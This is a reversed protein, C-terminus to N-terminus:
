HRSDIPRAQSRDHSVRRRLGPLATLGIAAPLCLFPMMPHRFRAVAHITGSVVVLYTVIAGVVLWLRRPNDLTPGRAARRRDRLLIVVGLMILGLMVFWYMSRSGWWVVQAISGRARIHTWAEGVRGAALLRSISAGEEPFPLAFLTALEGAPPQVLTLLSGKFHQRLVGPLHGLNYRVGELRAARAVAAQDKQQEAPLAAIFAPRYENRFELFHRGANAAMDSGAASFLMAHDIQASFGGYGAVVANRVHWGGILVAGGAVVAAAARLRTRWGAPWAAMFVGAGLALPLLYAVPRVLAAAGALAGALVLARPSRGRVAVTAASVILFTFLTESMVLSTYVVLLPEIAALYGALRAADPYGADAMLRYTMWVTACSLLLQLLFTTALLHGSLHGLALLAPYLPPRFLEPSGRYSFSGTTAFSQGIDVFRPSDPTFFWATSGAAFLALAALLVRLVLALGILRRVYPWDSASDIAPAATGTDPEAIMARHTGSMDTQNAASPPSLKDNAIELGQTRQDRYDCTRSVAAAAGLLLM